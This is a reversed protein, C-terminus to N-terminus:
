KEHAKKGMKIKLYLEKQHKALLKSEEGENRIMLTSHMACM